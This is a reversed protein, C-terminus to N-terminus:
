NDMKRQWLLATCTSIYELFFTLCGRLLILFVCKILQDVTASSIFEDWKFQVHNCWSDTLSQLNNQGWFRVFFRKIDRWYFPTLFATNWTLSFTQFSNFVAQQLEVTGRSCSSYGIIKWGSMSDTVGLETCTRLLPHLRGQSPDGWPVQQSRQAGAAQAQETRRVNILPRCAFKFHSYLM